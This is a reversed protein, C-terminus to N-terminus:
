IHIYIYIYLIYRLLYTMDFLIVIVIVGATQPELKQTSERKQTQFVYMRICINKSHPM